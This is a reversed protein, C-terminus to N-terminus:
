THSPVNKQSLRGDVANQASMRDIINIRVFIWSRPVQQLIQNTRLTPLSINQDYFKTRRSCCLSWCHHAVTALLVSSLRLLKPTLGSRRCNPTFPSTPNSAGGICRSCYCCLHYQHFSYQNNPIPPDWHFSLVATVSRSDKLSGGGLNGHFPCILWKTPVLNSEQTRGEIIWKGSLLLWDMKRGGRGCFDTADHYISDQVLAMVRYLLGVRLAGM